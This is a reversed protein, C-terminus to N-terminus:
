SERIPLWDAFRIIWPVTDVPVYGQIRGPPLPREDLFLTQRGRNWFVTLLDPLAELEVRAGRVGYVLGSLGGHDCYILATDAEMTFELDWTLWLERGGQLRVADFLAGEKRSDLAVFVAGEPASKVFDWKKDMKDRKDM